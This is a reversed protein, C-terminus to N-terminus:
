KATATEALEVVHRDVSLARSGPVLSEPYLSVLLTFPTGDAHRVPTVTATLEIEDEGTAVTRSDTGTFASARLTNFSLGLKAAALTTLTYRIRVTFLTPEGATAKTPSFHVIRALDGGARVRVAASANQPSPAPTSAGAPALDKPRATADIKTTVEAAERTFDAAEAERKQQRLVHALGNLIVRYRRLPETSTARTLDIAERYYHEADAPRDRAEELQGLLILTTPIDAVLKLRRQNALAESFLAHAEDWRRTTQVIHGLSQLTGNLRPHDPGFFKRQLALVERYLTEAEDLKGARRLVNALNGLFNALDPDDAGLAKKRLAISERMLSEAEGLKGTPAIAMALNSLAGAIEVDRAPLARRKALADRLLKEAEATRGQRSLQMGLNMATGAADASQEGWQAQNRALLRRQVAEADVHRGQRELASALFGMTQRVRDDDLKEQIALATRFCAEAEVAQGLSLLARGLDTWAVSVVIHEDSWLKQRLALAARRMAVANEAEGLDAYAAALVERLELEVEPQGSLESGLRKATDDLIDRLLRTDRGLAVHPGVNKLMEAILRAVQASRAAESQARAQGDEAATRLRTENARAADAVARQRAENERATEAQAALRAQTQEAATARTLAAEAETRLRVQVQEAAVARALAATERFYRWTSFGLGGVLAVVVMTTAAVALKHRAFLKGLRDSTSPPRALVPENELHRAIDAALAGPTEYRRARDKELCRMVIWDLDGRLLGSLNAPATDRHQAITSRDLDSLTALRTSPRPPEVERIIRRIEDLGAKRLTAPDYPTTGALLEYLLVGLSYIDARTDVDVGGLEAQEPSMYAPTGVFQEFATFLTHETLRGQTAKAIGFDIVKPVPQGDHLAVLINSPKIDRHIVGKQHAHQIAHCVHTFLALRDATALQHQDCYDTIRVGRVLEMVFYPRGNATAGADFVRAINPHDMLALAQREAEFRAIVAATDMGLKIIKLAVQRRVPEQQEALYVIGCGGEGLKELLTYRDIRTGIEEGNAAHSGPTRGELFGGARDSARLLGEVDRRLAADSACADDLFAAREAGSLALAGEFIEEVRSSDSM